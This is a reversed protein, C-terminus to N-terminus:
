TMHDSFSLINVIMSHFKWRYCNIRFESNIEERYWYWGTGGTSFSEYTIYFPGLHLSGVTSILETAGTKKAHYQHYEYTTHTYM